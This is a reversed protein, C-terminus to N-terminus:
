VDVVHRLLQPDIRWQRGDTTGIGITRRNIRTVIGVLTKGKGDDFTVKDGIRFGRSADRPAPEPPPEYLGTVGDRLHPAPEVAVAPIKWTRRVQDELVTVQQDRRAILKGRRLQGTRFDVFQVAQGLHLQTLAGAARKPDALMTDILSRLLYLQVSTAGQLAESVRAVADDEHMPRASQSTLGGTAPLGADARAGPHEM